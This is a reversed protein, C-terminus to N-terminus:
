APLNLIDSYPKVESVFLYYTKGDYFWGITGFNYEGAGPAAAFDALDGNIVTHSDFDYHYGTDAIFFSVTYGVGDHGSGNGLLILGSDGATAGTLTLVTNAALHGMVVTGNSLDITNADPLTKAALTGLNQITAGGIQEFKEPNTAPTEGELSAITVRWMSGSFYFLEGVEYDRSEQEEAEIASAGSDTPIFATAVNPTENTTVTIDCPGTGAAKFRMRQGLKKVVLTFGAHDQSLVPSNHALSWTGSDDREEILLQRSGFNTAAVTVSL